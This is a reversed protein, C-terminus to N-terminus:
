RRIDIFGQIDKVGEEKIFSSGTNLAIKLYKNGSEKHLVGIDVKGINGAQFKGSSKGVIGFGVGPIRRPSRVPM